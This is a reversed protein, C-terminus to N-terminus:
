LLGGGVLAAIGSSAAGPPNSRITFGNLDITVDPATVEIANKQAPVILNGNLKYHGARSLIAPFGATDGPTIGGANVKAQNILIEGDAAAAPIAALMVALSALGISMAKTRMTM